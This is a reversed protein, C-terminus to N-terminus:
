AERAMELLQERTLAFSSDIWRSELLALLKGMQPGPTM